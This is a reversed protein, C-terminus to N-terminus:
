KMFYFSGLLEHIISDIDRYYFAKRKLRVIATVVIYSSESLTERDYSVKIIYKSSFNFEFFKLGLSLLIKSSYIMLIMIGNLERMLIM